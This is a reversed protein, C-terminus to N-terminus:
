KESLFEQSEVIVNTVYKREGTNNLYSGTQIRGVVNVYSGKHLKYKTALAREGFTVCEIYDYTQMEDNHERKMAVTYTTVYKGDKERMEPERTLHGSLFVKNM